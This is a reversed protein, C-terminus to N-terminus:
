IQIDLDISWSRFLCFYSYKIKPSNISKYQPKLYIVQLHRSPWLGPWPYVLSLDVFIDLDFYYYYNKVHKIVEEMQTNTIFGDSKVLTPTFYCFFGNSIYFAANNHKHVWM